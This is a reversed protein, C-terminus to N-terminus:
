GLGERIVRNSHGPRNGLQQLRMRFIGTNRTSRGATWVALTGTTPNETFVSFRTTRCKKDAFPERFVGPNGRKATDLYCTPIGM